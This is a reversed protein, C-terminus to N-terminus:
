YCLGIDQFTNVQWWYSRLGRRMKTAHPPCMKSVSPQFYIAVFRNRVFPLYARRLFSLCLNGDRDWQFVGHSDGSIILEGQRQLSEFNKMWAIQLLLLMNDHPTSLKGSHYLLLLLVFRMFRHLFLLAGHFLRRCPLSQKKNLTGKGQVIKNPRGYGM